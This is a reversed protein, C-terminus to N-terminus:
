FSKIGTSVLYKRRSFGGPFRRNFNGAIRMARESRQVLPSTADVGEPCRTGRPIERGLFYVSARIEPRLLKVEKRYFLARTGLAADYGEYRDLIEWVVADLVQYVEVAVIGPHEIVGPYGNQILRLGRLLGHGHFALGHVVSHGQRALSRRRLSGYAAFFTPRACEMEDRLTAYADRTNSLDCRVYSNWLDSHRTRRVRRPWGAICCAFTGITSRSFALGAEAEAINSCGAFGERISYSYSYSYSKAKSSSRLRRCARSRWPKTPCASVGVRM